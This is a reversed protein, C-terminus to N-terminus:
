AAMLNTFVNDSALATYEDPGTVGGDLHWVGGHRDHHGLSIWLRATEVLM